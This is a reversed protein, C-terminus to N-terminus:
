KKLELNQMHSLLVHLIQRERESKNWKIIKLGMWKGAFSMIENKKLASYQIYKGCQKKM